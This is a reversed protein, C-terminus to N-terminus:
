LHRRSRKFARAAFRRVFYGLGCEVLGALLADCRELQEEVQHEDEADRLDRRQHGGVRRPAADRAPQERESRQPPRPRRVGPQRVLDIGLLAAYPQHDEGRHRRHEDGRERRRAREGIVADGEGACVEDHACQVQNEVRGRGVIDADLFRHHSEGGGRQDAGHQQDEGAHDAVPRALREPAQRQQDVIAPREDAADRAPPDRGAMEGLPV